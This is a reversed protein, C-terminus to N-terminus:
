HHRSLGADNPGNGTPMRAKTAILVRDLRGKLVEGVIEESAGGSYADATDVRDVGADVEDVSGVGVGTARRLFDDTLDKFSPQVPHQDGRFRPHRCAVAGVVRAKRPM